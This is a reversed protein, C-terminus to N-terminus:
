RNEDYVGKLFEMADSWTIFGSKFLARAFRVDKVTLVYKM